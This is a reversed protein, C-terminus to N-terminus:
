PVSPHGPPQYPTAYVATHMGVAALKAKKSLVVAPAQDPNPTASAITAAAPVNEDKKCGVAAFAALAVLVALSVQSRM